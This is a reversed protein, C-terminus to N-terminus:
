VPAARAPTPHSCRRSSGSECSLSDLRGLKAGRCRFTSCTRLLHQHAKEDVVELPLNIIALVIRRGTAAPKLTAANATANLVGAKASAVGSQLTPAAVFETSHPSPAEALAEPAGATPAPATALAASATAPPPSLARAWGAGDVAGEVTGTRPSRSAVGGRGGARSRRACSVPAWPGRQPM